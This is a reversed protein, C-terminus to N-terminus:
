VLRAIYWMYCHVVFSWLCPIMDCSSRTSSATSSEPIHSWCLTKTIDKFHQMRLTFQKAVKTAHSHPLGESYPGVNKHCADYLLLDDCLFADLKSRLFTWIFKTNTLRANTRFLIGVFTSLFDHSNSVDEVSCCYRASFLSIDFRIIGSVDSFSKSSVDSPSSPTSLEISMMQQILRQYSFEFVLRAQLLLM